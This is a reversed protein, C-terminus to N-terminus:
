DFYCNKHLAIHISQTVKFPIKPLFGLTLPFYQTFSKRTLVQHKKVHYYTHVSQDFIVEKVLSQSLFFPVIFNGVNSLVLFVPLTFDVSYTLQPDFTDSWYKEALTSINETIQNVQVM